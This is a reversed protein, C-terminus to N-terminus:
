GEPQRLQTGCTRCFRDDPRARQGCQHCYVQGAANGAKETAKRGARRTKSRPPYAEGRNSSFWYWGLGGAILAVALVALGWPLYTTLSVQGPLNDDLSSSPEVTLTSASLINDENDYRVHLTFTANAAASVEETSLYAFGNADAPVEVMVPDTTLNTAATPKQLALHFAKVAYDGPWTFVFDRTANEQQYPLYYEIHYNTQDTITFTVTTTPGQTTESAEVTLLERGMSKAVAVLNGNSPMQFHVTAPLTTEPVLSFDYIVLVAPQDHDPWLQITLDKLTIDTQAQAALPVALLAFVVLLLFAVKRM